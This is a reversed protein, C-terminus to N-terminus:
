PVKDLKVVADIAQEITDFVLTLTIPAQTMEARLGRLRRLLDIVQTPLERISWVAESLGRAITAGTAIADSLREAEDPTMFGADISGLRHLRVHPIDNFSKEIAVVEYGSVMMTKAITM